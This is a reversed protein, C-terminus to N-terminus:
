PVMAFGSCPRPLILPNRPSLSSVSRFDGRNEESPSDNALASTPLTVNAELLSDRPVTGFIPALVRTVLSASSFFRTRKGGLGRTCNGECSNSSCSRTLSCYKVILSTSGPLPVGLRWGSDLGLILGLDLVLGFVRGHM